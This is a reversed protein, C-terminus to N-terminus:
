RHDGLQPSPLRPSLLGGLNKAVQMTFGLLRQVDPDSLARMTGFLGVPKIPGEAAATVAKAADAIVLLVSPNLAGSAGLAKFEHSQLLLVVREVTESINHGLAVPEVGREMLRAMMGDVTNVMTAVLGPLQDAMALLQFFEQRRSLVAEIMQANEPTSLQQVVTDFRALRESDASPAAADLRALIRDLRTEIATLRAAVDGDVPANPASANSM